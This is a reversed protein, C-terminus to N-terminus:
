VEDFCDIFFLCGTLGCEAAWRIAAKRSPFKLPSYNKTNKKYYAKTM